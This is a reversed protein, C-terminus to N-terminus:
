SQMLSQDRQCIYNKVTLYDLNFIICLYALYKVQNTLFIYIKLIILIELNYNNNQSSYVTRIIKLENLQLKSLRREVTNQEICCSKILKKFTSIHM